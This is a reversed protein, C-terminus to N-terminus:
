EEKGGERQEKRGKRRARRITKRGGEWEKEGGERGKSRELELIGMQENCSILFSYSM